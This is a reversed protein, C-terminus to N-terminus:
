AVLALGGSRRFVDTSANNPTGGDSGGLPRVSVYTAGSGSTSVSSNWSGPPLRSSRVPSPLSQLSILVPRSKSSHFLRM